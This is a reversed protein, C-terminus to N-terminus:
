PSLGFLDSVSEKSTTSQQAYQAFGAVGKNVLLGVARGFGCMSIFLATAAEERQTKSPLPIRELNIPVEGAMSQEVLYREALRECLAYLLEGSARALDTNNSLMLQLLIARLTRNGRGDLDRESAAGVPLMAENTVHSSPQTANTQSGEHQRNKQSKVLELAASLTGKSEFLSRFVTEAGYVPHAIYLMRRLVVLAAHTSTSLERFKSMVADLRGAHDVLLRKIHYCIGAVAAGHSWQLALWLLRVREGSLLRIAADKLTDLAKRLEHSDTVFSPRRPAQPSAISSSCCWESFRKDARSVLSHPNCELLPALYGPVPSIFAVSGVQENWPWVQSGLLETLHVLWTPGIFVQSALSTAQQVRESEAFTPDSHSLSNPQESESYMPPIAKGTSVKASTADISLLAGIRVGCAALLVPHVRLWFPQQQRGCSSVEGRTDDSEVIAKAAGTPTYGIQSQVRDADQQLARQLADEIQDIEFGYRRALLEIQSRSFMTGDVPHVAGAECAYTFCTIARLASTVLAARCEDGGQPETPAFEAALVSSSYTPIIYHLKNTQDTFNFLNASSEDPDEHSEFELTFSDTGIHDADATEPAERQGGEAPTSPASVPMARSQSPSTHNSGTVLLLHQRHTGLAAEFVSRLYPVYKASTLGLLAWMVASAWLFYPVESNNSNTATSTRSAPESGPLRLVPALLAANSTCVLAIAFLSDLSVADLLMVFKPETDDGEYEDDDDSDCKGESGNHLEPDDAKYV